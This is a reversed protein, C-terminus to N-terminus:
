ELDVKGFLGRSNFLLILLLVLAYLIQRTPGVISQPIDLLRILEPLFIILVTGVISGRLSALGGIIVITLVIIVENLHFFDPHIYGLFHSWLAGAIGAFFASIVMAKVKLAFSNKGLSRLLIEDDRAAEFMTGLPSDLIRKMIWISVSVIVLAFFFFSYNSVLGSPRPIGRIGRSGFTLDDLNLLLSFVVFTFSLTAMALYDGKLRKISNILFFGFTASVIGALFIGSYAYVSDSGVAGAAAVENGASAWSSARLTWIASTYSGIGFFAVHGLNILGTFGLSFNFSVALLSYIVIQILLVILFDM